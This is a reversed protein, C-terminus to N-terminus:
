PGLEITKWPRFVGTGGDPAHEYSHTTICRLGGDHIEYVNYKGAYEQPRKHVASTSGAEVIRMVGSGDPFTLETLNPRHNHGHLVLDVRGRLLVDLVQDANVLRRFFDIHRYPPTVLHHHVLVVVFRNKVEDLALLETLARLQRRSVRGTAYAPPTPVASSLGVVAVGDRLKVYPYPGDAPLASLDSRMLPGFHAEFRHAWASRYTYRDHNGPIVSIRSPEGFDELLRRALRFEAELSLNTLDGTVALHDIGGDTLEDLARRVVEVRHARARSLLLNAGGALRKNMFSLVSAGDLDLVHLDSIHAIKFVM